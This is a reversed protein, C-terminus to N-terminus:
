LRRAIGGDRSEIWGCAVDQLCDADDYRDGPKKKVRASNRHAAQDRAPRRHRVHIFRDDPNREGDRKEPHDKERTIARRNIEQGRQRDREDRQDENMLHRDGHGRADVREDRDQAIIEPEGDVDERDRQAVGGERERHAEPVDEKEAVRAIWNRRAGILRHMEPEIADKLKAYDQERGACNEAADPRIIGPAAEPAPVRLFGPRQDREKAVDEGQVAAEGAPPRLKTQDDRAYNTEQRNQHRPIADIEDQSFSQVAVAEAEAALSIDDTEDDSVQQENSEGNPAIAAHFRRSWRHRGGREGGFADRRLNPLKMAGLRGLVRESPLMAKTRCCSCHASTFDGFFRFFPSGFRRFERVGCASNPSSTEPEGERRFLDEPEDFPGSNIIARLPATPVSEARIMSINFVSSAAKEYLASIM